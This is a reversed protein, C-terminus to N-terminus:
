KKAAQAVGRSSVLNYPWNSKARIGGSQIANASAVVSIATEEPTANWDDPPDAIGWVNGHNYLAVGVMFQKGDTGLPRCSAVRGAASAGGPLGSLLIPTEVPLAKESRIGCGQASVVLAACETSLPHRRDLSAVTLPIEM